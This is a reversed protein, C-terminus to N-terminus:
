GGVSLRHIPKRETKYYKIFEDIHYIRTKSKIKRHKGECCYVDMRTEIYVDGEAGSLIDNVLIVFPTKPDDESPHTKEIKQGRCVKIVNTIRPPIPSIPQFTIALWSFIDKEPLPETTKSTQIKELDGFRDAFILTDYSLVYTKPLGLTPCGQKIEIVRYDFATGSRNWNYPNKADIELRTGVKLKGGKPIYPIPANTTTTITVPEITKNKKFPWM